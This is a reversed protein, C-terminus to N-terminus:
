ENETLCSVQSQLKSSAQGLEGASLQVSFYKYKIIGCFVPNTWM